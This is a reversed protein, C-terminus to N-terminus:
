KRYAFKPLDDEDTPVSVNGRVLPRAYALFAETVDSGDESIWELPVTKEKNCIENVDETAYNLVYDADLTLPSQRKFAVMKGTEGKIAATVGFSGSAIAEKQDTKSLMASSCRQSVNLEVSRVKVGLREKVLNELYKGSGTLMKHGFTDVGVESGLECIFTGDATHIGESICVVLNSTTELSSKIKEIFADQDFAVEPLYILVPNDNEFKRALASAATLWGAHRGMIEVITVSQKNDYVSADIAIERVTSAVYKAASGFGPTHDTLVLDNDITKPLGMFRIDSNVSAAYRSLKSVTDMSDNGGIYFFYGINYKEFKEFLKPYVTDSLDEPLKYRCSGLYSGPTTKILELEGSTDLPKMDMLQDHLFGEIGNIMGYVNGFVDERNLAEYVVGYLSANIVATPGGSQGVIANKKM